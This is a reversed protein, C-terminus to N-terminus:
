LPGHQVLAWVVRDRGALDRDVGMETRGRRALGAELLNRVCPAQGDGIELAVGGREALVSSLQAALRRYASLGDTGGDLALRPEFASVEPQLRDVDGSPIYPPNSVVIDAKEGRDLLPGLLDGQVLTVRAEVGHRELNIKAVDLAARSVDVATVRAEPWHVALAAAIAGSGTGVDVIHPAEWLGRWRLVREVLGETEPRPILVAPTVAFSLGYFEVEGVIYQLPERAKRREVWERFLRREAESLFRDGYAYLQAKGLGTARQLLVEACLRPADVGCRKFEAVAWSLASAVTVVEEPWDAM